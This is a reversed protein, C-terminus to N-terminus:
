GVDRRAFVAFGLTGAVLGLVTLVLTAGWNTTAVPVLHLHYFPSADLLWQPWRM